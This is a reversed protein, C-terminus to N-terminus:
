SKHHNFQMKSYHKIIYGYHNDFRLSQSGIIKLIIPSFDCYMDLLHAGTHVRIICTIVLEVCYKMFNEKDGKQLKSHDENLVLKASRHQHFKQPQHSKEEVGPPPSSPGSPPLPHKHSGEAPHDKKHRGSAPSSPHKPSNEVSNFYFFSFFFIIAFKLLLITFEIM